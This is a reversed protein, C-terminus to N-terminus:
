AALRAEAKTLAEMAVRLAEMAGRVAARAEDVSNVLPADLPKMAEDALAYLATEDKGETATRIAALKMGREALAATAVMQAIHRGSYVARRGTRVPMDVVGQTGYYRLLRDTMRASLGRAALGQNMADIADNILM